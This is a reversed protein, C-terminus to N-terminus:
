QWSAFIKLPGAPSQARNAKTPPSRDLREVVAGGESGLIQVRTLTRVSCKGKLMWFELVKVHTNQATAILKQCQCTYMYLYMRVHPRPPQAILVRVEWWPSSPEIEPRSTPITGSSATPRRTKEPIEQKRRGKM